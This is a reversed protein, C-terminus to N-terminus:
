PAQAGAVAPAQLACGHALRRLRVVLAAGALVVAAAGIMPQLPAFVSTAGSLGLLMVILKNCVPCGVAFLALLGSGLPAAAGRTAESRVYTGVLAGALLATAVLFVVDLTRVPTMRTFWPNPVVDTPIGVLLTTLVTALAAVVYFRRPLTSWGAALEAIM